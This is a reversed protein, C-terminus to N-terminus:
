LGNIAKEFNQEWVEGGVAEWDVARVEPVGLLSWLDQSVRKDFIQHGKAISRLM